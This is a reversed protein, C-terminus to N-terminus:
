VKKTAKTKSMTAENYKSLLEAYKSEAKALELTAEALDLKKQAEYESKLAIKTDDIDKQRIRDANELRINLGGIEEQYKSVVSSIEAKKFTEITDITKQLSINAAELSNINSEKSAVTNRLEAVESSIGAFDKELAENTKILDKIEKERSVIDAEHQAQMSAIEAKKLQEFANITDKLSSNTAEISSIRSDKMSIKDSIEENLRKLRTIETQNQENEKSLNRILKDRDSLEVKYTKNEGILENNRYTMTNLKDELGSKVEVFVKNTEELESNRTELEKIREKHTEVELSLNKEKQEGHAKITKVTDQSREVITKFHKLISELDKSILSVEDGLMIANERSEGRMDNIYNWFMREFLDTQSIKQEKAMDKFEDEVYDSPRVANLGAKQKAKVNSNGGDLITEESM